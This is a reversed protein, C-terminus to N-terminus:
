FITDNLHGFYKRVKPNIGPNLSAQDEIDTDQIGSYGLGGRYLQGIENTTLKRNWLGLEDIVGIWYGSGTSSGAGILLRDNAMSDAFSGTTDTVKTQATGDEYILGSAEDSDFVLVWHKFTTHIETSIEGYASSINFGNGANNITFISYGTEIWFEIERSHAGMYLAYMTTPFATLTTWFSITFDGLDPRPALLGTSSRLYIADDGTFLAGYGQKGTARGVTGGVETLTASGVSDSRTGSAEEFQFYHQLGSRLSM